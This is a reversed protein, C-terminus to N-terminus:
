KGLTLRTIDAISRCYNDLISDLERRACIASDDSGLVHQLKSRPDDNVSM